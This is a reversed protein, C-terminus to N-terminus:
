KEGVFYVFTGDQEYSVTVAKKNELLANEKWHGLKKGKFYFEDVGNVNALTVDTFSKQNKSPVYYSIVFDYNTNSTKTILLTPLQNAPLAVCSIDLLYSTKYRGELVSSDDLSDSTCAVLFCLITFAIAKM